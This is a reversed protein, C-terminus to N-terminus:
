PEEGAERWVVLAGQDVLKRIEGAPYGLDALIAESHEGLRPAPASIAAPTEEFRAAPRALRIRGHDEFEYIGVIDNAVVQEHDLLELRTLLPASPVDEANLRALIEERNWRVLEGATLRKREGVNRFRAATTSFRPDDIWEPKGLANCLGRWEANTIAGATIYGDATEYILDMTGQYKTVDVEDGVFVLGAMGEPWFFAITADLMALRIHQGRGTRERAFLAAAVAQAATLATVKDAIVVRFMKPRRTDRDAQIDTAGTLAQVVPDYVRQHAYPGQEGFGSISLYILGPHEKCLREAGLGLRDMAGPRFNQMVVDATGILTRAAEMGEAKKLDLCLSRKGRNCAFFGATVGNRRRGMQRVEDGAPPEVKIVEAGQDALMAAAMPGSVMATFDVVRVGNLPGAM